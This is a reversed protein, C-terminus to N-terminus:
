NEFHRRATDLLTFTGMVNATVTTRPEILSRAVDTEAALHLVSTPQHQAFLKELAAGDCIDMPVLTYSPDEELDWVSSLSAAYTLGDVNLVKHGRALAGRVVRNGIFGAGGTVLLTM